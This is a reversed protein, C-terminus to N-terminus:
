CYQCSFWWPATTSSECISSGGSSPPASDSPTLSGSTSPWSPCSFSPSSGSTCACSHTGLNQLSRLSARNIDGCMSYLILASTHYIFLALFSERPLTQDHKIAQEPQPHLFSACVRVRMHENMYAYTRMRACCVCPCVCISVFMCM